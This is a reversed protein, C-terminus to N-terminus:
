WCARFQPTEYISSEFTVNAFCDLYKELDMKNSNRRYIESQWETYSFRHGCDACKCVAKMKNYEVRWYVSDATDSILKVDGSKDFKFNVPIETTLMVNESDCNLCKVVM